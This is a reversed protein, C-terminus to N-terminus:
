QKVSVGMRQLIKKEANKVLKNGMILNVLFYVLVGLIVSIVTKALIGEVLFRTCAVVAIMFTTSVLSQFIATKPFTIKVIKIIAILQVGNVILESIVSAIAAGDQAMRPIFLFNLVINAVVAMSYAPLRKKENGTVLVLQYCLLDGFSRIIVLVSFLRITQAALSFSDGFILVVLEPALACLGAAMPIAILCLVETGLGILKTFEARDSKYYYSLRPLFTASIATCLTIVIDVSKHANSYLGVATDTCLAGLMTIDVRSYATSLFVSLALVIIPTIHQRFALGKFTLKVFKRAHIANFLYNGCTALVTILAYIIYDEKTRVFVFVAILAVVKTILSRVAIYGYEELGQYLWDINLFNMVIQLGCCLFLLYDEKFSPAALILLVYGFTAVATSASNILFLETYTKNIDGDIARVKVIERVGHRPLGLSALVVFYSAINQAYAVQGAGDALLVKSVYSTTVFLFLLNSVTYIVNFVTNKTLSKM